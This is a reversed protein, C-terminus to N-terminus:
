EKKKPTISDILAYMDLVVLLKENLRYVGKSIGHWDKNVHAPLRELKETPVEIVEDLGEFVLSYMENNKNIVVSYGKNPAIKTEHSLGLTHAVDIETVIHGRLNLVGIINQSAMLVPTTPLRNIVDEIEDIVAGFYHDGINVILTKLVSPQNEAITKALM